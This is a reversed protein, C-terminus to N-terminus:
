SGAAHGPTSFPDDPEDDALLPEDLSVIDEAVTLARPGSTTSPGSGAEETRRRARALALGDVLFVLALTIIAGEVGLLILAKIRSGVLQTPRDPPVLHLGYLTAAPAGADSQARAVLGQLQQMLVDYDHTAADPSAATVTALLTNSSAISASVTYDATGGNALMAEGFSSSSALDALDATFQNFSGFPNSKNDDSPSTPQGKQIVLAGGSVQYTPKVQKYIMAALVGVVLACAVVIYWRRRIVHVASWFEM